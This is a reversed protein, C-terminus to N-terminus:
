LVGGFMERLESKTTLFQKLKKKDQIAKSPLTTETPLDKSEM